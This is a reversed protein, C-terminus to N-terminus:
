ILYSRLTRPAPVPRPGQAGSTRRRRRDRGHRPVHVTDVRGDIEIGEYASYDMNMHHTEVGIRRAHREPRLRRHRRRLGPRDRGQPPLPRVHAGAHHRVIEVWRACASARRRRRGPLHLDMRHEVGGIGNPIKSFDGLGLEKQEKFCFPCHDTRCSRCTTPACAGGCTTRTAEHEPRLPTSCVYKAGEFGPAASTTRSPRPLPVAPLDRRLRQLGHDRAAAVTPSAGAQGVHARHLAARGAVQALKIARHTAEAELRARAPHHRPVDPRDRRPRAGPRRARRHRHRERRADHDHRRQRPATQMARLIQGDDSYFVGPYAMFLKFSTIGEHSSRRGDGEAVADDVGGIIM